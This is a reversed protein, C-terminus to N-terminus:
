VNVDLDTGAAYQLYREELNQTQRVIDYQELGKVANRSRGEASIKRIRDCWSVQDGNALFWVQDTLAIERTVQDSILCPLGAAQAEVCVVPLGEYLSPLLFIDMASLYDPVNDVVGAFLVQEKIGLEEALRGIKERLEGDGLLVLKTDMGRTRTEAFIKLLGEHNKQEAFRGIHGLLLEHEKVGLSDRIAKRKKEDFAYRELRIANPLVVLQGGRKEGFLYSGAKVSCAFYQNAYRIGWQNLLYNRIKKVAGDAGRANHSHLIRVKIGYKKAYRLVIFAANPIHVHVIDYDKAHQRFFDKVNREYEAMSRGSPKGTAYVKAGAATLLATWAEEPMEYLLFDCQVKQPDMQFFYNTVVASVGSNYNIFDLVQLVRISESM